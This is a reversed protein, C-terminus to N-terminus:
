AKPIRAMVINAPPPYMEPNDGDYDAPEICRQNMPVKALEELSWRVIALDEKTYKGEFDKFHALCSLPNDFNEDEWVVHSPGFHLPDSGTKCVEVENLRREAEKYIDSVVKSWGWHCYWCFGGGM